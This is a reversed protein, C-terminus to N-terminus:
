CQASCYLTRIWNWWARTGGAVALVLALIFLAPKLASRRRQEIEKAVEASKPFTYFNASTDAPSDLYTHTLDNM